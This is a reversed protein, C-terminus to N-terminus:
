MERVSGASPFQENKQKGALQKVSGTRTEWATTGLTELGLPTMTLYM